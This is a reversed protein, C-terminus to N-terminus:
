HPIPQRKGFSRVVGARGSASVSKLMSISRRWCSFRRRGKEKAAVIQNRLFDPNVSRGLNPNVMGWTDPDQWKKAMRQPLEYLVALVPLKIRGDRVARAQDLEEKFVGAPAEKSQTTIQMLFGDPRSALAGRLEVFIGAARSKRAFEHTEDILTYTAKGGTIVDGDAAKIMIESAVTGPTERLKISRLHERIHFLKSLTEDALVIGAAQKFAINAITMTPAILLLEAEPRENMLAATVIIAAAISSKGNKKPVLLFIEQIARCKTEVDYAGFITRVLDFVWEDCVEGYTPKGFIDPVRLRKFIRLAKEAQDDHLPLTPVLSRRAIIREEWDPVATDWIEAGFPMSM